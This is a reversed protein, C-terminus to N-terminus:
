EPDPKEDPEPKEDPDPKEGPDPKEDPDPKESPEPKKDPETIEYLALNPKTTIDNWQRETADEFNDSIKRGDVSKM